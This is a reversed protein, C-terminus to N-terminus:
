FQCITYRPVALERGYYRREVKNELDTYILGLHNKKESFLSSLTTSHVIVIRVTCMVDTTVSPNGPRFKLIDRIISKIM